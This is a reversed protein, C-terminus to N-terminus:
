CVALHAHVALLTEVLACHGGFQSFYVMGVREEHTLMFGFLMHMHADRLLLLARGRGYTPLLHADVLTLQLAQSLAPTCHVHKSIKLCRSQLGLCYYVNLTTFGQGDTFRSPFFGVFSWTALVRLSKRSRKYEHADVIHAVM